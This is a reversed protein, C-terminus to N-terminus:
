HRLLFKVLELLPDLSPAGDVVWVMLVTVVGSIGEVVVGPTVVM